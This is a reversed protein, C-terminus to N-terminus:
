RRFKFERSIGFVVGARSDDHHIGFVGGVDFVHVGHSWRIGIRGQGRDEGGPTPDRRPNELGSVEVVISLWPRLPLAAAVGYTLVDHQAAVRTAEDLIGLGVSGHIFAPGVTKGVLVRGFFRLTDPGLGSENSANPLVISPYFSVVPRRGREDVIMVKTSLVADGFDSRTGNGDRLYLVDRLTGRLQFEARGLGFRIGNDLLSLHNGELRYIPFRERSYYGMGLETVITGTPIIRPDETQLPRQQAWSASPAIALVLLCVSSFLRCNM